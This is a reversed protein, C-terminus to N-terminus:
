RDRSEKSNENNIQIKNATQKHRNTNIKAQIKKRLYSTNGKKFHM